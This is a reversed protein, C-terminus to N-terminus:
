TMNVQQTIFMNRNSEPVGENCSYYIQCFSLVKQGRKKVVFMPIWLNKCSLGRNKQERGQAITKKEYKVLPQADSCKTPMINTSM